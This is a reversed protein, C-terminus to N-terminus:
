KCCGKNELPFNYKDQLFHLRQAFKPSLQSDSTWANQRWCFFIDLIDLVDEFPEDCYPTYRPTLMIWMTDEM